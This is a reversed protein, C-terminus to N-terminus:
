YGAVTRFHHAIATAVLQLYRDNSDQLAEPIDKLLSYSGMCLGYIMSLLVILVAIGMGDINIRGERLEEPRTVDGRLLRDLHSLWNMM